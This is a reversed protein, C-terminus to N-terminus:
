ICIHVVIDNINVTLPAGSLQNAPIVTVTSSWRTSDLIEGTPDPTLSSLENRAAVRIYYLTGSTLQTIVYSFPPIGSIAIGSVSCYGFGISSCSAVVSISNEFTDVTDWSV